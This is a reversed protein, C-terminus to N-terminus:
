FSARAEFQQVRQSLDLFLEIEEDTMDINRRAMVVSAVDLARLSDGPSLHEDTVWGFSPIYKPLVRTASVSAGFGIVGGTPIAANIGIKAHDGIVAGFFQQGSDVEVGNIPVRIPGYTNKLDSNVAGAGLNVWSGVYAHGLFGDHQKNTYGHIVCGQIEGGLKCLPGFANGGHIWARPNLRSGPGIYLPGEIVCYAGITVDDSIFIPGTTADIVATPHICTREGIHIHEGGQLTLRSDLESEVAAESAQWDGRLLDSLNSIVDWPHRILRGVTPRRPVGQLVLERLDRRQLDRPSLREALAPDCVIYAVENEGVVGVAPPNPFEVPEDFLWRGNILITPGNLPYNAPAGCRQATVSGIWNRTWVGAVPSGLRQAIRDLAIKRGIQLEFMSRWFLLPLLDVFGEDEFLVLSKM